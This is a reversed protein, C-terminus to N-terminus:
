RSTDDLEQAPTKPEGPKRLEKDLQAAASKEVLAVEGRRLLESLQNLIERLEDEDIEGSALDTVLAKEIGIAQTEYQGIDREAAELQESPKLFFYAAGLGASGFAIVATVWAPASALATIGAIGSLVAVPIGLLYHVRRWFRRKALAEVLKENVRDLWERALERAPESGVLSAFIVGIPIPLPM